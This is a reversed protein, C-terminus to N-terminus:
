NPIALNQGLSATVRYAAEGMVDSEDGGGRFRERSRRYNTITLGFLYDKDELHCFNAAIARVSQSSFAVRLDERTNLRFAPQPGLQESVGGFLGGPEAPALELSRMASCAAEALEMAEPLTILERNMDFTVAGIKGSDLISGGGGVFTNDVYTRASRGGGQFRLVSGKFDVELLHPDGIAIYGPRDASLHVAHRRVLPQRTFDDLPMGIRVRVTDVAAEEASGITGWAISIVAMAVVGLVGGIM